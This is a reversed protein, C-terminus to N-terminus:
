AVDIAKELRASVTGDFGSGDGLPLLKTTRTLNAERETLQVRTLSFARKEERV